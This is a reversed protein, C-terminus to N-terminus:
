KFQDRFPGLFRREPSWDCIAFVVESFCGAFDTTLAQYFDEATQHPDNKFAGCGWAGLVLSQYRFSKSISLLRDIRRKLLERSRPQGVAPAYPAASTIVSIRKVSDFPRQVDDCIFPVDPSLIAWDSSDSEGQYSHHLYMPDGVLTWYLSSCRCLTEEQARAGRQFGGGPTVGNAFNLVLPKHGADIFRIAAGLSTENSVQVQTQDFKTDNLDILHQWPPISRKALCADVIQGRWDVEKGRADEYFGSEVMQTIWRTRYFALDRSIDLEERRADAMEDSDFVDLVNLPASRNM